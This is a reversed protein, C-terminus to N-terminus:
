KLAAPRKSLLASREERYEAYGFAAMMGIFSIALIGVLVSGAHFMGTAVSLAIGLVSGTIVALIITRIM